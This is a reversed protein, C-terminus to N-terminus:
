IGKLNLNGKARQLSKLSVRGRELAPYLANVQLTPFPYSHTRPGMKNKFITVLYPESQSQLRFGLYAM